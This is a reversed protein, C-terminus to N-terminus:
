HAVLDAKVLQQTRQVSQLWRQVDAEVRDWQAPGFTRCVVNTVKLTRTLQDLKGTVLGHSIARIIWVELDPADPALGMAKAADAFPLSAKDEVASALSLLRLKGLLQDKPLPALLAAHSAAFKEYDAVTGREVISLLEHTAAYDANAHKALAAVAPVACLADVVYEDPLSLTLMVAEQARKLLDPTVQAASVGRLATQIAQSALERQGVAVFLDHTQFYLEREEAASVGWTKCWRQYHPLQAEVMTADRDALAQAVFSMLLAYRHAPFFNYASALLRVRLAVDGSAEKKGALGNCLALAVARQEAAAVHRTLAFLLLFCSEIEKSSSYQWLVDSAGM